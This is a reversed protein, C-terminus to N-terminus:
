MKLESYKKLRMFDPDRLDPFCHFQFIFIITRVYYHSRIVRYHLITFLVKDVPLDFKQVYLPVM